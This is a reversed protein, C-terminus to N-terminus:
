EGMRFRIPLAVWVKVRVDRNLAPSFRMQAAVALAAEDFAPLGSSQKIQTRAVKGDEDVLVWVLVDGTVGADRLMPPYLRQLARLVQPRNLLEPRVTMVTFDGPNPEAGSGTSGGGPRAVGVLDGGTNGVGGYRSEDMFAGPTIPPIDIPPVTPPTVTGFDPLAPGRPGTTPQPTRPLEPPPPVPPPAPERPLLIDFGPPRPTSTTRGTTLWVALALLLVHGAISASTSAINAATSRPPASAMLHGVLLPPAAEDPASQITRKRWM